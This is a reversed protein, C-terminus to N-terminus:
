ALEPTEELEDSLDVPEINTRVPQSGLVLKRKKLRTLPISDDSDEEEEEEPEGLAKIGYIVYNTNTKLIKQEAKTLLGNDNYLHFLYALIM